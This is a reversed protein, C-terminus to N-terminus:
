EKEKERGKGLKNDDYFDALDIVGKLGNAEALKGIIEKMRTGIDPNGSLAVMYAFRGGEPVLFDAPIQGAYIDSMYKMFLLILVYDKYRSSDMGGRLENYSKWLNSYLETKIPM